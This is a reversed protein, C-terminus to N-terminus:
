WLHWDDLAFSLPGLLALITILLSMAAVGFAAHRWRGHGLYWRAVAKPMESGFDRAIRTTYIISGTVSIGTLVCGFVFWLLKTFLGGFTGFHLPNAALFLRVVASQSDALMQGTATCSTRDIMVRNGNEPVLVANGQGMAVIPDEPETPLVIMSIRLGALRKPLLGLCADTTTTASITAPRIQVSQGSPAVDISGFLYLIGTVAIIIMFWISWLAAFRHLDGAFRRLQGRRYVPFKLFGRWFRKYSVLGSVLTVTLLVSFLSVLFYGSGNPLMLRRHLQRLVQQVNRWGTTGTFRGDQPAMWVRKTEGSSLAIIAQAAFGPQLPALLMEVRGGEAHLSATRYLADWAVVGNESVAAHMAPTLLWDIENSVTALTGTALIFTLLVSLKLGAWSHVRWWLSRGKAKTM